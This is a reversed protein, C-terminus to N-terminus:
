GGLDAIDQGLAVLDSHELKAAGVNDSDEILGAPEGGIWFLEVTLAGLILLAVLKRIAEIPSRKEGM